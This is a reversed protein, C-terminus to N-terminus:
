NSVCSPTMYTVWPRLYRIFHPGMCGDSKPLNAGKKRKQWKKAIKTFKQGDGVESRLNGSKHKIKLTLNKHPLTHKHMTRPAFTTMCLLLFGACHMFKCSECSFRVSLVWLTKPASKVTNDHLIVTLWLFSMERLFVPIKDIHLSKLIKPLNLRCYM